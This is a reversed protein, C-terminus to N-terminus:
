GKEVPFQIETMAPQDTGPPSLYIERVPGAARYANAEMWRGMQAYTQDLQDYEGVHIICAAQALGPLDHAQLSRESSLSLSRNADASVPVVIEVDMNEPKFEGDHYLTFPAGTIAVGAHMITQCAEGLLTGIHQPTPIVERISMVRQSEITKIVVDAQSMIDEQEIQKLKAAVRQLRASEEEIQQQLQAQKLRLMGRLEEPSVPNTLVHRIEELSLGLDRLALIRNLRPLQQLSYYRYSTERDIHDPLLLGIDAYYRLMSVPVRCIRSFDGIKFM